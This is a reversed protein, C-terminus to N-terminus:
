DWSDAMGPRLQNSIDWRVLGEYIQQLLDITTGDRVTAPDLTTPESTIPYRLSNSNPKIDPTNNSSDNTGAGANASTPASQVGSGSKGGSGTTSCGTFALSGVVIAALANALSIPLMPQLRSGTSLPRLPLRGLM